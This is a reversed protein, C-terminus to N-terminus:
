YTVAGAEAISLAADFVAAESIYRRGMGRFADAAEAHETRAAKNFCEHALDLYLGSIKRKEEKSVTPHNISWLSQAHRM